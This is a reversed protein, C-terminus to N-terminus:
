KTEKMAARIAADFGNRGGALPLGDWEDRMWRYMAAHEADERPDSLLARASQEVAALMAPLDHRTHVREGRFKARQEAACAEGYSEVLEILHEVREDATPQPASIANRLANIRAGMYYQGHEDWSSLLAQAAERISQTM